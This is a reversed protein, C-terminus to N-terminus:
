VARRIGGIRHQGDVEWLPLAADPIELVGFGGTGETFQLLRRANLVIAQALVPRAGEEGGVYEAIKKFRTQQPLRQYGQRNTPTWADPQTLGESLDGGALRTLFISTNGQELRMAPVKIAAM